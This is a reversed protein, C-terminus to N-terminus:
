KNQNAKEIAIDAKSRLKKKNRIDSFPDIQSPETVQQSNDHSRQKAQRMKKHLESNKSSKHEIKTVYFWYASVLVLYVLWKLVYSLGLNTNNSALSYNVFDQHLFSTLVLAILLAITLGLHKKYKRWLTVLLTWKVLQNIM